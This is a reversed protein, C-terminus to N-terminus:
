LIEKISKSYERDNSSNISAFEMIRCNFSIDPVYLNILMNKYNISSSTEKRYQVSYTNDYYDIADYRRDLLTLTIRHLCDIFGDFIISEELMNCWLEILMPYKSFIIDSSNKTCNEFIPPYIMACLYAKLHSALHLTNFHIRKSNDTSHIAYRATVAKGKMRRYADKKCIIEDEKNRLTNYMNVIFEQSKNLRDKYNMLEEINNAYNFLKAFNSRGIVIASTYKHQENISDTTKKTSALRDSIRKRQKSKRSPDDKPMYYKNRDLTTVYYPKSKPM